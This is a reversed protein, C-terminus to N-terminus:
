GNKDDKCRERAGKLDEENNLTKTEGNQLTINVPFQLDPREEAEPNAEHWARLKTWDDKTEITIISNDAMTFSIPLVFKFCKEREQRKEKCHEKARKLDEKSNLTKTEDNHLVISVPFQLAPREKAEPNAEHWARLKAWDDKTEITIISNDAMTFSVPLVFKFCREREQKEDQCRSKARKLERKNNLTKTEGNKLTINVPFELVAHKRVEPNAEHWARIKAWDDKSEITIISNDAMTFSIPLVFKFCRSRERDEKKKGKKFVDEVAVEKSRLTGEDDVWTVTALGDCTGDGFNVTFVLEKDNYFEVIGAVVERCDKNKVIEEIVVRRYDEKEGSGKVMVEPELGSLSIGDAVEENVALDQIKSVYDKDCATFITMSLIALILIGIVKKM